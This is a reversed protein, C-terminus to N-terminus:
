SAFADVYTKIDRPRSLFDVAEGQLMARRNDNEAWETTHSAYKTVRNFLDWVKMSALAERPKFGHLGYGANEYFNLEEEYPAIKKSSEEGVAFRELMRSVSHLESLSARTNMATRAMDAFKGYSRSLMRTDQPISLIGRISKDDLATIKPIHNGFKKSIIEFKYIIFLNNVIM